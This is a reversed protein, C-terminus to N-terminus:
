NSEAGRGRRVLDRDRSVSPTEFGAHLVALYSGDSVPRRVHAHQGRGGPNGAPTIRQGTPLIVSAASQQGPAPQGLGTAALTGLVAAILATARCAGCHSRARM